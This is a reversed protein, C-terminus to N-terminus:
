KVILTPSAILCNFLWCDTGADRAGNNGYNFSAVCYELLLFTTALITSANLPKGILDFRNPQPLRYWKFFKFIVEGRIM